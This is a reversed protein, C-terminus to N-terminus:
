RLAAQAATRLDHLRPSLPRAAEEEDAEDAVVCGCREGSKARYLAEDAAAILADLGGAGEGQLAAGVSAGILVGQSGIVYPLGAVAAIMAEGRVRAHTASTMPAVLLFEDGGIRAVIDGPQTSDRLRAAVMALLDDGAAHGMTDNVRKFGDLDLFLCGLRVGAPASAVADALGSRNMLGTLADHRARHSNEHEACLASVMTRNMWWAARTMIAVYLPMQIAAVLLVIEGAFACAVAGPLTSVILMACALRPAGFYRFALGGLMAASSMGAITAAVWDGSVVTISTGFGIGAGWLLSLVVYLDVPAPAGERVAKRCALLVQFRVAALLIEFGAWIYLLTSDIRAALVSAVIITNFVAGVYITLSGFVNALLRGRVPAPIDKGIDLLWRVARLRASGGYSTGDM